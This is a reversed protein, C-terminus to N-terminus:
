DALMSKAAMAKGDVVHIKCAKRWMPARHNFVFILDEEDLPQDAGLVWYGVGEARAVVDPVPTGPSLGDCFSAMRRDLYIDAAVGIVVLALLFLFVGGVVKLGSEVTSM